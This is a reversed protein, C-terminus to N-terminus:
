EYFRSLRLGKVQANKIEYDIAGKCTSRCRTEEQSLSDLWDVVCIIKEM